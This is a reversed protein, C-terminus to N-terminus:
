NIQHRLEGSVCFYSNDISILMLVLDGFEQIIM